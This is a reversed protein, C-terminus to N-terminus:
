AKGGAQGQRLADYIGYCEADTGRDALVEALSDPRETYVAIRAVGHVNSWGTLTAISEASVENCLLIDCDGARAIRRVPMAEADAPVTQTLRLSLLATVHEPTTEFPIDAPAVRDLQVYAFEGGQEVTFGPEGALGSSIRRVREACVDRCLNKDPEKSTAETSACLIFRRKGNDESNLELVAHATTGSGAFFDLVVDTPRMSQALLGKILSLPKPYPFDKNGLIQSLMATGESTGGTVLQVVDDLGEDDRTPEAASQLWSSLPNADRKLSERFRKYRPRGYGLKRGVWVDIPEIYTLLRAVKEDKPALKELAKIQTYIRLEKPATGAKIAAMLAEKSEYVVVDENAPWLIREEQIITEIPDAQLKKKKLPRTKSSFRWVTDPDCLYWTDTAPNRIPYYAEPRQKANKSQILMQNGWPGRPDNDPNTYKTEDRANGVFEFGPNCYVLVHEHDGSFGNTADMSGQRTRWVLSGLRRGPFVEDMLLELRARNDDNISVLIVGDPALLDRALMLRQYLWELWQSHRWRDTKSVFRDNYVWDKNGTNYPPDIYIVRIRGTHTSKLLRLADFNDGEIVLNHHCADASMGQPRLSWAPVQRPLVIDANLAADHAILDREWTLGLRRKTLHEVLLRRLEPASLGDLRSLLTTPSSAETM